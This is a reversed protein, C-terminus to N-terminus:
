KIISETVRVVYRRTTPYHRIIFQIFHQLHGLKICKGPLTIDIAVIGRALIYHAFKRRMLYGHKYLWAETNLAKKALFPICHLQSSSISLCHEYM